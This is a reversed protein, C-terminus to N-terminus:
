GLEREEDKLQIEFKLTKKRYNYSEESENVKARLIALQDVFPKNIVKCCPSNSSPVSKSTLSFPRSTMTLGKSRLGSLM